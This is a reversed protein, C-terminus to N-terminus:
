PGHVSRASYGSSIAWLTAMNFWLFFGIRNYRITLTVKVPDGKKQGKIHSFSVCYSSGSTHVTM